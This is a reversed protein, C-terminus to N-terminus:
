FPFLLLSPSERDLVEGMGFVAIGWMGLLVPVVLVCALGLGYCPQVHVYICRSYPLPLSVHVRTRSLVCLCEVDDGLYGLVIAVLIHGLCCLGWFHM